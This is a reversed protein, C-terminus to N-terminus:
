PFISKVFYGWKFVVSVLVTILRPTLKCRRHIPKGCLETVGVRWAEIPKLCFFQRLQLPLELHYFADKLDAMGVTLLEGKEIEIRSLADGTCLNVHAPDCFHCNSRRCDLIMRQRDNKKSVVFIAVEESAPGLDSDILGSDHLRVLFEGYIRRDNLVPDSYPKTVGSAKLRLGVENPLLLKNNVFADVTQRGNQGWLQDLPIPSWGPEPLSIKGLNFSCLSGVPPEDAYGEAARLMTLAGSRTMDAPPKGAEKVMSVIRDVARLQAAGHGFLEEDLSVFTPGGDPCGYMSNLARITKNAERRFHGEVLVKRVSKRCLGARPQLDDQVLPLPFIDRNKRSRCAHQPSHSPGFAAPEGGLSGEGGEPPTKTRVRKTAREPM